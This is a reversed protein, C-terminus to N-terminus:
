LFTLVVEYCDIGKKWNEIFQIDEEKSWQIKKTKKPISIIEKEERDKRKLPSEKVLDKIIEEAPQIYDDFIIQIQDFELNNPKTFKEFSIFTM